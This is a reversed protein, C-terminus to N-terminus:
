STNRTHKLNIDPLLSSYLEVIEKESLIFSMYNGGFWLSIMSFGLRTHLCKAPHKHSLHRTAPSLSDGIFFAIYLFVPLDPIKITWRM